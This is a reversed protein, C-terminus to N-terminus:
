RKSFVTISYFNLEKVDVENNKKLDAKPITPMDWFNLAMTIFSGTYAASATASPAVQLMAIGM